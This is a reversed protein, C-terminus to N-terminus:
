ATKKSALGKQHLRNLAELQLFPPISFSGFYVITRGAEIDDCAGRV